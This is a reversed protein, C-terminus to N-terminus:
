LVRFSLEWERTKATLYYHFSLNLFIMLFSSGCNNNMHM